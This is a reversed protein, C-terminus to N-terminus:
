PCTPDPPHRRRAAAWRWLLHLLLGWLLSNAAIAGPVLFPAGRVLWANPLARLATDHPLWLLDHVVGAARSWPSRSRLQDMDTGFAAVAVLLAVVFHAAALALIRPFAM